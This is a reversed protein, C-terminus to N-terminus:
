EPSFGLAKYLRSLPIVAYMKGHISEEPAYPNSWHRSDYSNSRNDGMVFYHGAPVEFDKFSETETGTPLYDELIREGNIYIQGEIFMMSDGPLGVIRKILTKNGTADSKLTVIDGRQPSKSMYALNNTIAIDGINLTPEMSSSPIRGPACVTTFLILAILVVIMEYLYHRLFSFFKSFVNETTQSTYNTKM